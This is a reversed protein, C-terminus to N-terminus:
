CCKACSCMTKLGRRRYAGASAIHKRTTRGHTRGHTRSERPLKINGRYRWYRNVSKRWVKRSIIKVAPFQTAHVINVAAAIHMVKNHKKLEELWHRVTGLVIHVAKENPYGSCIVSVYTVFLRVFVFYLECLRQEQKALWNEDDICALCNLSPELFDGWLGKSCSFCTCINNIALKDMCLNSNVECVYFPLCAFVHLCIPM